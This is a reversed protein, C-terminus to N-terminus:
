GECKLKYHGIGVETLSRKDYFRDTKTLDVVLGMRLQMSEVYSMLMAIDFKNGEPVDEDYRSSLPTKFPIFRGSNELKGGILKGKRPCGLWRPPISMDSCCCIQYLDDLKNICKVVGVKGHGWGWLVFFACREGCICM